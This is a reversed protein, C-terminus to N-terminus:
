PTSGAPTAESSPRGAQDESSPGGGSGEAASRHIDIIRSRNSYTVTEYRTVNQLKCTIDAVREVQSLVKETLDILRHGPELESQILEAYGSLAQLPQNMEHCVAGATELVGQFKEKQLRNREARNRETLDMMVGVSGTVQGEGTEVAATSFLFERSNGDACPIVTEFVHVGRRELMAYEQKQIFAALDAPIQGTLDQNRRGIIQNRPQGIVDRSFARNCGLFVGDGDKYYIPNPITNILTDLLQLYERLKAESQRRTEVAMSQRTQLAELENRSETLSRSLAEVARGRELWLRILWTCLLGLLSSVTVAIWLAPTM